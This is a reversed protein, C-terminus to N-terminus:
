KCPSARHLDGAARSKVLKLSALAFIEAFAKQPLRFRSRCEIMRCHSAALRGAPHEARHRVDNTDGHTLLDALPRQLDAFREVDRHLRGLSQPRCM